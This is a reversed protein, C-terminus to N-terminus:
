SKGEVASQWIPKNNEDYKYIGIFASSPDNKDNFPGAGSVGKYQIDKGDKLLAKCADYSTCEEGGNAGSVAHLNAQITAPDTAGGKIAALGALITADYSEAAYSYDSLESGEVQKHWASARKKFDDAPNAGPITGQAGKLTGAQFDKGYDSTNGDTMYIKSMDWGQAQLEPIISKTEDFAIVVIADPNSAKAATVESSFTTQGPPFEQSAGEAGYTISGGADEVTKQIVDRLGTGYADNFVLFAVKANGDSTILQGLASGQVTDPPATRFYFSSYGSLKAATNAPSIQVIPSASKTLKDVVNLSVSSSAAGIVFSVKENILRDASASSVSMDNSDGSDTWLNCASDGAAAIDATALGVGSIEPPGLFALTGTTPLLTGVKLTTASTTGSACDLSKFTEDAGGGSASSSPSSGSSSCGALALVAVGAVAVLSAWRKQSHVM